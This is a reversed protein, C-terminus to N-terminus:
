KEGVIRALIMGTVKTSASLNIIFATAETLTMSNDTTRDYVYAQNDDFAYEYREMPTANTSSSAGALKFIVTNAGGTPMVEIHDIEIHGSSPAAIIENDGSSDINIEVQIKRDTKM